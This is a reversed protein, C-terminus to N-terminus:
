MFIKNIKNKIQGQPEMQMQMKEKEKKKQHLQQIGKPEEDVKLLPIRSGKLRRWKIPQNNTVTYNFAKTALRDIWLTFVM